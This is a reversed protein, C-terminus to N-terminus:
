AASKDKGKKAPKPAEDKSAKAAKAAKPAAEAKPKTPAKAKTAAPAKAAAPKSPTEFTWEDLHLWHHSDESRFFDGSQLIGRSRFDQIEAESFPGFETFNRSVYILKTM